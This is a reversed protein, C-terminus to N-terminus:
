GIVKEKCIDGWFLPSDEKHGQFLEKNKNRHILNYLAQNIGTLRYNGWYIAEHCGTHNAMSYPYHGFLEHFTEFGRKTDERRSTHYTVNHLGIEFGKEKISRSWQVYDADECTIGGVKPIENGRLPWVSKTTRLGIDSLFAYVERIDALNQLDTDDFITFAFDKGDPWHTRNNMPSVAHVGSCWM